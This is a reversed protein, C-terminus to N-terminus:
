QEGTAILYQAERLAQAADISFGIIPQALDRTIRIEDNVGVVNGNLDLLMGGSDGPLMFSDTRIVAISGDLTAQYVGIRVAPATPFYPSYGLAVVYQGVTLQSSGFLSAPLVSATNPAVQAQIVALDNTADAGVVHAAVSNGDAFTVKISQAGDVVHQNTLIDGTRDVVIGSAIGTGGDFTVDIRVLSHQASQAVRLSTAQITQDIPLMKGPPAIIQTTDLSPTAAAVPILGLEKALDGANVLTVDGSKAFTTAVRWYQFAARECRVVQVAGYDAFGQPLGYDDVANADAFYRARIQPAQDLMGLHRKVVQPWSLKGDASNDATLPILRTKALTPDFGHDSLLDFINVFEVHGADPRWQLLEKQTAQTLFGSLAFRQSSPYGLKDVSGLRQFESYFQGANDDVVAFGANLGQGSAQTYFHGGPIPFDALTAFGGAGLASAPLLQSILLAAVL